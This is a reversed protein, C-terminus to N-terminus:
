RPRILEPVDNQPSNVLPSVPYAQLEGATYPVLLGTLRQTEAEGRELWLPYAKEPLIVPMRNHITAMLDNPQTPPILLVEPVFVTPLSM